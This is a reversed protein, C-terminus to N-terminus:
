EDTEDDILIDSDANKVSEYTNKDKNEDDIVDLYFEDIHPKYGYGYGVGEPEKPDDFMLIDDYTGEFVDGDGEDGEDEDDAIYGDIEKVPVPKASKSRLNSVILGLVIAIVIGIAVEIIIKVYSDIGSANRNSALLESSIFYTSCHSINFSFSGQSIHIDQSYEGSASGKNFHYLYYDGSKLDVGDITIEASFPLSGSHAFDLIMSKTGSPLIASIKDSDSSFDYISLDVDKDTATITASHILWKFSIKDNIKGVIEIDKGLEKATKLEEKTIFAFQSDASIEIAEDTAIETIETATTSETTTITTLTPAIINSVTTSQTTRLSTTTTRRSTTTPAPTTQTTTTTETTTPTTASTSQTTTETSTKSTSTVTQNSDTTEGEDICFALTSLSFCMIVAFFLCIIRKKM